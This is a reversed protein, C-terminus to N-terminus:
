NNFWVRTYMRMSFIPYRSAAAPRSDMGTEEPPSWNGAHKDAPFSKETGRHSKFTGGGWRSWIAIGLALNM